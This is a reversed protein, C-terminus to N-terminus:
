GSVSAKFAKIVYTAWNPTPIAEVADWKWHDPEVVKNYIWTDIESEIQSNLKKSLHLAFDKINTLQDDLSSTQLIVQDSVFKKV